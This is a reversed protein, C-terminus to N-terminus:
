ELNSLLGALDDLMDEKAPAEISLPKGWDTWVVEMKGNDSETLLKRMRNEEDVWMFYTLTGDGAAEDFDVELKNLDVTLEYKNTRVGKIDKSGGLDKWEIVADEMQRLQESPDSQSILSDFQAAFPNSDDQPDIAFFKEHSLEGINMYLIGDVLIMHMASEDGLDLVTDFENDQPDKATRSKAEAVVTQGLQEVTMTM